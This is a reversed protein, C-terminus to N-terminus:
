LLSKQQTPLMTSLSWCDYILLPQESFLRESCFHPLFRSNLLDSDKLFDRIVDSVAVGGGRRYDALNAYLHGDVFGRSTQRVWKFAVASTGVGPTGAVIAITPGDADGDAEIIDNLAEIENFRDVFKGPVPPIQQPKPILAATGINLSGAVYGVQIVDGRVSGVAFSALESPQTALSSSRSTHRNHVTALLMGLVAGATTGIAIGVAIAPLLGGSAPLLVGIGSGILGGITGGISAWSAANRHVRINARTDPSPM